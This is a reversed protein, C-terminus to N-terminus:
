LLGMWLLGSYAGLGIIIAAFTIMLAHMIGIVLGFDDPEPQYAAVLKEFRDPCARGQDCAGNCPPCKM